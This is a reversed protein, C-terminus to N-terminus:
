ILKVRLAPVVGCGKNNPHAFYDSTGGDGLIGRIASYKSSSVTRLWWLANENATIVGRALAYDTPKKARAENSNLGYYNAIVEDYTLLFLRDKFSYSTKDYSTSNVTVYSICNQIQEPSFALKLFENNLYKRIYSQEYNLSSADFMQADIAKESLITYYNDKTDYIIEWKLPEVKFYHINKEVIKERNSFKLYQSKEVIQKAYYCGDNGLYYGRDDIKSTIEVNSSKVTQPFEGIIVSKGNRIYLNNSPHNTPDLESESPTLAEGSPDSLTGKLANEDVDISSPLVLDLKDCNLFAEKGIQAVSQPINIKKLHKCNAFAREGIYRLGNQVSIEMVRSNEFAGNEIAIVSSPINIIFAYPDTLKKIIYTGDYRKEYDFISFQNIETKETEDSLVLDASLRAGCEICFNGSPVNKGCKSCAQSM